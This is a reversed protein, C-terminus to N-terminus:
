DEETRLASVSISLNGFRLHRDNMLMSLTFRSKGHVKVVEKRAKLGNLLTGNADRSEDTLPQGNKLPEQAVFASFITNSSEWLLILLFGSGLSSLLLSIHYPPMYSLDIAAPLDWLMRALFLAWSWATRRIFTAYIFPGCIGALTARLLARQVLSPAAIKLQDIPALIIHARYNSRNKAKSGATPLFARDYDYYLHLVAQLFALMFFFSRLYIPRENLRKKEWARSLRNAAVELLLVLIM